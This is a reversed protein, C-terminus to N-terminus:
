KSEKNIYISNNGSLNISKDINPVAPSEKVVAMAKMEREIYRTPCKEFLEKWDNCVM